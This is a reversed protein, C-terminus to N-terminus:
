VAPIKKKIICYIKGNSQSKTRSPIERHIFVGGNSPNSLSTRPNIELGTIDLHRFVDMPNLIDFRPHIMVKLYNLEGTNINNCM